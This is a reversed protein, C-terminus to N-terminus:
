INMKFIKSLKQSIESTEQYKQHPKQIPFMKVVKNVIPKTKNEWKEWINLFKLVLKLNGLLQKTTQSLIAVKLFYEPIFKNTIFIRIAILLGETSSLPQRQNPKESFIGKTKRDSKEM